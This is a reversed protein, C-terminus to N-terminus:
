ETLRIWGETQSFREYDEDIPLGDDSFTIEFDAELEAEIRLRDCPITDALVASAMMGSHIELLANLLAEFVLRQGPFVVREFYWNAINTIRVIQIKNTQNVYCCLIYSDKLIFAPPEEAPIDTKKNLAQIHIDFIENLQGSKVLKKIQEFGDQSGELILKVSGKEVKKLKLSVDGSIKRLYDIIDEIQQNDLEDFNIKLILEWQTKPKFEKKYLIPTLHESFGEMQIEACGSKFAEDIMRNAGLAKYFGVSFAIAAKDGIEQSMGVVYAIASSIAKAQTKSHCANLIVCQVETSALEFVARLADSSVPHATGTINEFCLEGTSNGHGSFHIIQPKIDFIAQTIDGTRVSERSELQFRDRYRSMQLKERIERLEQGLRLRALNTPEAMLFLIRIRESPLPDFIQAM